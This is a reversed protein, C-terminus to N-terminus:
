GCSYPILWLEELIGNMCKWLCARAYKAIFATHTYTFSRSPQHSGNNRWWLENLRELSASMEGFQWFEPVAEGHKWWLVKNNTWQHNTRNSQQGQQREKLSHTGESYSCIEERKNVEKYTIQRRTFMWYIATSHMPLSVAHNVPGWQCWNWSLRKIM